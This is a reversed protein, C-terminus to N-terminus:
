RFIKKSLISANDTEKKINKVCSCDEKGFFFVLNRIGNTGATTITNDLSGGNKPFLIM